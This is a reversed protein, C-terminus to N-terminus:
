GSRLLVGASALDSRCRNFLHSDFSHFHRLNLGTHVVEVYADRAEPVSEASCSPHVEEM